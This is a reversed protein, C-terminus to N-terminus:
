ELSTEPKERVSALYQGEAVAWGHENVREEAEQGTASKASPNKIM